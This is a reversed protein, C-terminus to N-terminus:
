LNLLGPSHFGLFLRETGFYKNKDPLAFKLLPHFKKHKSFYLACRTAKSLSRSQFHVGKGQAHVCVLPAASLTASSDHLCHHLLVCYVLETLSQYVKTNVTYM